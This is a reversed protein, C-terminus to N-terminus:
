LFLQESLATLAQHWYDARYEYTQPCSQRPWLVKLHHYAARDLRRVLRRMMVCRRSSRRYAQRTRLDAAAIEVDRQRQVEEATVHPVLGAFALLPANADARANRRAATRSPSKV